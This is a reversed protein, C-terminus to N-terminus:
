KYSADVSQIDLGGSLPWNDLPTQDEWSQAEAPTERQLIRLRSIASLSIELTTWFRVLGLLTTNTVLVINLAVGIAGGTTNDRWVVALAILGIAIGAVILDM